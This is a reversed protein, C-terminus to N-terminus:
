PSVPNSRAGPWVSTPFGCIALPVRVAEWATPRGGGAIQHPADQFRVNEKVLRVVGLPRVDGNPLRSHIEDGLRRSDALILCESCSVWFHYHLRIYLDWASDANDVDYWESAGEIWCAKM